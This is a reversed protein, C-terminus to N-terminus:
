QKDNLEPQRTKKEFSHSILFLVLTKNPRSASAMLVDIKQINAIHMQKETKYNVRYDALM